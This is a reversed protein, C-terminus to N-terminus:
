LLEKSKPDKKIMEILTKLCVKKRKRVYADSTFKLMKAIIASTYGKIILRIIERCKESIRKIYKHFLLEKLGENIVQDMTDDFKVNNDQLKTSEFLIDKKISRYHLFLTNRSLAYFFTFFSSQKITFEKDQVLKYMTVLAEQFIDKALDKDGNKKLVMLEVAHYYTDYIFHLIKDNGSRIGLLIESTSYNDKKM